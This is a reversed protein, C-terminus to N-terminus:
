TSGGLRREVEARPMFVLRGQKGSTYSYYLGPPELDALRAHNPVTFSRGDSLRLLMIAKESRLVAVGGDVDGLKYGAPLPLSLQRAGTGVDFAEIAALRAVVLRGGDLRAASVEGPPFPFVGVLAGQTDVVAVAERERIAILGAAVSDVPAAHAGSRLTACLSATPPAWDSGRACRERGTGIRVLRSGDNFVLLDEHGHAAFHVSEGPDPVDTAVAVTSRQTLTASQLVFYCYNGCSSTWAWAARSGALQVGEM